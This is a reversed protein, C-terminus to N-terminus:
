SEKVKERKIEAKERPCDCEWVARAKAYLDILLSYNTRASHTALFYARTSHRLAEYAKPHARLSHVTQYLGNPNDLRDVLQGNISPTVAEFADESAYGIVPLGTAMSELVTFSSTTPHPMVLATADKMLEIIRTRSQPGLVQLHPHRRAAQLATKALAGDGVMKLETKPGPDHSSTFAHLVDLAGSTEHLEGIFLAYGGRGNGVGPDMPLGWPKVGVRMKEIGLAEVHRAKNESLAIWFHARARWHELKWHKSESDHLTQVIPMGVARLRLYVDQNIIGTPDHVHALDFSRQHLLAALRQTANGFSLGSSLDLRTVRHRSDELLRAEIEFATTSLDRVVGPTSASAHLILIDSFHNHM